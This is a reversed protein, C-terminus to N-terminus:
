HRSRARSIWDAGGYTIALIYVEHADDDVAFVIVARRAAPIARLGSLIRDRRADCHPLDILGRAAADIENLKQKAIEPSAYNAILEAITTLDDAVSPHYRLRSNM